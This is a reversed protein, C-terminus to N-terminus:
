KLFGKHDKDYKEVFCYIEFKSIFIEFEKLKMELCKADIKEKTNMEFFRFIQSLDIDFDVYLEQLYLKISKELFFLDKIQIRIEETLIHKAPFSNNEEKNNFNKRYNCSPTGLNKRYDSSNELNKRYDSPNEINKRCDFSPNEINKRDSMPNEINKRYDFLPNEINKRYDYLSNENNKRYDSLPNEINQRYDFPRNEINKQYEFPIEDNKRYDSPNENYSRMSRSNPIQPEEKKEINKYEKVTEINQQIKNYIPKTSFYINKNSELSPNKTPTRFSDRNSQTYTLNTNFSHQPEYGSLNKQPLNLAFPNKNIIKQSDLPESENKLHNIQPNPTSIKNDMANCSNCKFQAPFLHTNPSINTKTKTKMPSNRSNIDNNSKNLASNLSLRTYPKIPLIFEVFDSYCISGDQDKDIRKIICFLDHDKFHFNIKSFFEAM